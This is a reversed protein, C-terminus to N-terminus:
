QMVRTKGSSSAVNGAGEVVFPATMRMAVAMAGVTTATSAPVIIERVPRDGHGNEGRRQRQRGRRHRHAVDDPLGFRRGVTVPCRTAPFRKLAGVPRM